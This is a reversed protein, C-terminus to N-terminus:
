QRPVTTGSLLLKHFCGILEDAETHYFVVEDAGASQYAEATQEDAVPLYVMIKTFPAAYKAKEVWEFIQEELEHVGIFAIDFTNEALTALAEAKDSIQEISAQPFEKAIMCQLGSQVLPQDDVTLFKM